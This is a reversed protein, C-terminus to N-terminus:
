RTVKRNNIKAIKINPCLKGVRFYSVLDGPWRCFYIRGWQGQGSFARLTLNKVLKKHMHRGKKRM